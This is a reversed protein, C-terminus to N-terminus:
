CSPDLFLSDDLWSTMNGLNDVAQMEAKVNLMLMRQLEIKQEEVDESLSGVSSCIDCLIEVGKKHDRRSLPLISECPDHKVSLKRRKLTGQGDAGKPM